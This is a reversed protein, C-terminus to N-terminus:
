DLFMDALVAFLVLAFIVGIVIMAMDHGWFRPGYSLGGRNGTGILAQGLTGNVSINKM